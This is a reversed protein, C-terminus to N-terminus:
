FCDVVDMPGGEICGLHTAMHRINGGGGGGGGGGGKEEAAPVVYIKPLAPARM